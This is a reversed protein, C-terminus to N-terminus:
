KKATSRSSKTSAKSEGLAEGMHEQYKDMVVTLTEDNFVSESAQLREWQAQGLLLRMSVDLDGRSMAAVARIDIRAPLSYVEGGFTFVYPPKEDREAMIADIDVINEVKPVEM